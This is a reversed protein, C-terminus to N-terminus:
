WWLEVSVVCLVPWFLLIRGLYLIRWAESPAHVRRAQLWFLVSSAIWVPVTLELAVLIVIGEWLTLSTLALLSLFLYSSRRVAEEVSQRAGDRTKWWRSLIWGMYAMLPALGGLFFALVGGWGWVSRGWATHGGGFDSSQFSLASIQDATLFGLWSLEAGFLIVSLLLGISKLWSAAVPM